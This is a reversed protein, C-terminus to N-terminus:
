TDSHGWNLICCAILTRQFLTLVLPQFARPDFGPAPHSIGRGDLDARPDAWGGTSCTIPGKGPSLAAPAHRQGGVWM